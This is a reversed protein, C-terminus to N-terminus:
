WKQSRVLPSETFGAMPALSMPISQLVHELKVPQRVYPLMSSCDGAKAEALTLEMAIRASQRAPTDQLKGTDDVTNRGALALLKGYRLLLPLKDSMQERPSVTSMEPSFPM